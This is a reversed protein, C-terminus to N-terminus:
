PAGGQAAALLGLASERSPARLVYARRRDTLGAAACWGDDRRAPREGDLFSRAFGAAAAGAAAADAYEVVVLDATGGDVRYRGAAAPAEPGVGLPNDPGVPVHAELIRPHRLYVLSGDELGGRPLGGALAPREGTEEIAAAVARGLAFVATRSRPTEQEAYASVFYRGKWFALTGYGYSSDQGVDAAEGERSHTFVGFADAPSAMEFVDVVVDGEGAPGAYRRALCAAMGYALYVEGHGDIYRFITRGDYRDAPGAAKWGAAEDPLAPPLGLMAALMVAEPLPM